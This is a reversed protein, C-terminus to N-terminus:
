STTTGADPVESCSNALSAVPMQGDDIGKRIVGIPFRSSTSGLSAGSLAVVPSDVSAKLPMM